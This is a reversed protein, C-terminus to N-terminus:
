TTANPGRAQSAQNVAALGAVWPIQAPKPPCEPLNTPLVTKKLTDLKERLADVDIDKWRKCWDYDPPNINPMWPKANATLGLPNINPGLESHLQWPARGAANWSNLTTAAHNYKAVVSQLYNQKM